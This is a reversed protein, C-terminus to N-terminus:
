GILGLLENMADYCDESESARMVIAIYPNGSSDRVYLILNHGAALTTGTKGGVVTVGEPPNTAATNYNNTSWEHVEEQTGDSHHYVTTYDSMAIIENFVQFQLAQNFILYMDYVTTYHNEDTLGNSNIFNTNTAGLKMAEENMMEVFHSTSGGINEAILVAVDNDSHILLMHLAQNLTLVDGERLGAAQASPDTMIVNASATLETDLDANELAVLATMIKTLSAPYVQNFANRAYLVEKNNIDFLAASTSNTVHQLDSSILDGDIVCLNDAFPGAVEADGSESVLFNYNSLRSQEEFSVPISSGCGTFVTCCLMASAVSFATRKLFPM